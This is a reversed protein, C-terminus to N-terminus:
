CLVYEIKNTISYTYNTQHVFLSWDHKSEYM